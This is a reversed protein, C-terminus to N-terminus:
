KYLQVLTGSPKEGESNVFVTGTRGAAFRKGASEYIGAPLKVYGVEAVLAPGHTLYFEVFAKVEPRKASKANVYIFLPRSFPAYSGNEITEPNPLVPGKGGDIAV